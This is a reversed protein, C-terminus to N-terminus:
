TKYIFKLHILSVTMSVGSFVSFGVSLLSVNLFVTEDGSFNFFSFIFIPRSFKMAPESYSSIGSIPVALMKFCSFSLRSDSFSSLFIIGSFSKLYIVLSERSFFFGSGTHSIVFSKLSSFRM